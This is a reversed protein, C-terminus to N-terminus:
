TFGHPLLRTYPWQYLIFMGWGNERGRPVLLKCGCPESVRGHDELKRLILLVRKRDGESGGEMEPGTGGTFSGDLGTERPGNRQQQHHQQQQWAVSKRRSASTFAEQRVKPPSAAVYSEVAANNPSRVPTVEGARLNKDRVRVYTPVYLRTCCVDIM